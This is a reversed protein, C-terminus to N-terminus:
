KITHSEVSKSNMVFVVSFVVVFSFPVVVIHLTQQRSICSYLKIAKTTLIKLKLMVEIIRRRFVKSIKLKLLDTVISKECLVGYLM